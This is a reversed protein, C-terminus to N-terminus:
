GAVPVVLVRFRGNPEPLRSYDTWELTYNGHLQLAAERGRRTGPGAKDGWALAGTM